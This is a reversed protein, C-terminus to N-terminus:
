ENTFYIHLASKDNNVKEWMISGAKPDFLFTSTGKGKVEYITGDMFPSKSTIEFYTKKATYGNIFVYGDEIGITTNCKRDEKITEDINNSAILVAQVHNFTYTQSQKTSSNTQTFCNTLFLSSLIFTTLKNM